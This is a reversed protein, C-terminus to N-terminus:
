EDVLEAPIEIMDHGIEDQAMDTAVAGMVAARHAPFDWCDVATLYRDIINWQLGLIQHTTM